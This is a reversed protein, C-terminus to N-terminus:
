LGASRALEGAGGAHDIHGHTLLIKELVLGHEEVVSRIRELDGGPDVVAARLTQECWMLTCNQEFSTVPIITFKM